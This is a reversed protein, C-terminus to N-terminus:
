CWRSRCPRAGTGRAVAALMASRAAIKGANAAEVAVATFVPVTVLVSFILLASAVRIVKRRPERVSPALQSLSELGSYALWAGAFGSALNAASLARLRTVDTLMEAWDAPRLHRVVTAFMWGDVALAAIGGFLALRAVMGPGSWSLFGVVLIAVLSFVYAESPWIPKLTALYHMATVASLAITLVYASVMLAGSAAGVRPGFAEVAASVGGGGAPYRHALELHELAVLVFAVTTVLVFASAM